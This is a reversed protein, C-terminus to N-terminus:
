FHCRETIHVEQTYSCWLATSFGSRVDAVQLGRDTTEGRVQLVLAKHDALGCNRDARRRSQGFFKGREGRRPCGGLQGPVWLEQPLPVGDLVGERRVPDDYTDSGGGGLLGEAFDIGALDCRVGREEDRVIGRRFEGLDGRV